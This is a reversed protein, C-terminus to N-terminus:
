RVSLKIDGCTTEEATLKLANKPAYAKFKQLASIECHIRDISSEIMEAMGKLEESTKKETKELYEASDFLDEDVLKLVQLPTNIRDGLRVAVWGLEELKGLKHALAEREKHALAEIKTRELAVEAETHADSLDRVQTRLILVLAVVECLSGIQLSFRTITNGEIYGM